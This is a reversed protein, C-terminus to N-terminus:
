KELADTACEFVTGSLAYGPKVHDWRVYNGGLEAAANRLKNQAIHLEEDDSSVTGLERCKRPADAKSIIVREGYPSLGTAPPECGTGLALLITVCGIVSSSLSSARM